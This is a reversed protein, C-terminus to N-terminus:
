REKEDKALIKMGKLKLVTAYKHEKDIM